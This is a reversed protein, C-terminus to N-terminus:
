PDLEFPEMLLYLFNFLGFLANLVKLFPEVGFILVKSFKLHTIAVRYAANEFFHM